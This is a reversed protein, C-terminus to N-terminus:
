KKRKVLAKKKFENRLHTLISAAQEPDFVVLVKDRESDADPNLIVTPCPSLYTEMIGLKKPYDDIVKYSDARIVVSLKNDIPSVVIGMGTHHRHGCVYVDDAFRQAVKMGGHVPNWM